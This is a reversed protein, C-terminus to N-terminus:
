RLIQVMKGKSMVPIGLERAKQVKGTHNDPDSAVVFDTKNSVASTVRGGLKTIESEMDADRFGTFVFTHGKVTIEKMRQIIEQNHVKLDTIKKAIKDCIKEEKTDRKVYLRQYDTDKGAEVPIQKTIEGRKAGFINKIAAENFVADTQRALDMLQKYLFKIEYEVGKQKKELFNLEDKNTVFTSNGWTTSELQIDPSTIIQMVKM